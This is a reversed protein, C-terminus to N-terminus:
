GTEIPLSPDAASESVSTDCDAQGRNSLSSADPGTPYVNYVNVWTPM